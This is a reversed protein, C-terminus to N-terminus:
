AEGPHTRAVNAGFLMCNAATNGNKRNFKIEKGKPFFTLHMLVELM